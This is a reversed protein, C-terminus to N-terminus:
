ATSLKFQTYHAQQKQGTSQIFETSLCLYDNLLVPLILHYTLEHLLTAIAPDLMIINQVSFHKMNHAKLVEVICWRM